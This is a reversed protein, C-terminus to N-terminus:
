IGYLYFEQEDEDRMLYDLLFDSEYYAVRVMDSVWENYIDIFQMTYETCPDEDTYWFGKQPRVVYNYLATDHNYNTTEWDLIVYFNVNGIKYECHMESSNYDFVQFNIRAFEEKLEDYRM